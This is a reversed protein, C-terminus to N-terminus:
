SQLIGAKKKSYEAMTIQGSDLESDLRKIELAQNLTPVPQMAEKNTKELYRIIAKEFDATKKNKSSLVVFMGIAPTLLVSVLLAIIWGCEKDSGQFAVVVSLLVYAIIIFESTMLEDM